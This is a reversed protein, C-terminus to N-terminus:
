WADHLFDWDSLWSSAVSNRVTLNKKYTLAQVKMKFLFGFMTKLIFIHLWCCIIQLLIDELTIGIVILINTFRDQLWGSKKDVYTHFYVTFLHPRTHFYKISLLQKIGGTPTM